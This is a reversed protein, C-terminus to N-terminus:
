DSWVELGFKVKVRVLHNIWHRGGWDELKVSEITKIEVEVMVRIWVM